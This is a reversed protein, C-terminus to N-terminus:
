IISSRPLSVMTQSANATDTVEKFVLSPDVGFNAGFTPVDSLYDSLGDSLYDINDIPGVDFENESWGESDASCPLLGESSQYDREADSGEPIGVCGLFDEFGSGLTGDDALTGSSSTSFPTESRSAALSLQLDQIIPRLASDPNGRLLHSLLLSADADTLTLPMDTLPSRSFNRGM